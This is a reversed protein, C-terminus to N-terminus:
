PEIPRNRDSRFSTSCGLGFNLVSAIGLRLRPRQNAEGSRFQPCSLAPLLTRLEYQERPVATERGHAGGAHAVGAVPSRRDAGRSPRTALSSRHRCTTSSRNLGYICCITSRSSAVELDQDFAALHNVSFGREPSVIRCTGTRPIPVLHSARLRRSTRAQRLMVSSDCSPSGSSCISCCLRSGRPSLASGTQGRRSFHAARSVAM